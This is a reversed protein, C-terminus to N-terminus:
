RGRWQDLSTRHRAKGGVATFEGSLYIRGDPVLKIVRVHGQVGGGPVEFTRDITGDVDLRAINGRPEEDVTDFRGGILMKGDPQVALGTVRGSFRDPGPNPQFTPDNSGDPLLRAVFKRPVGNVNEFRGVAVIRGDELGIANQLAGDFEPRFESNFSGDANLLALNPQIEGDITAFIGGIIVSGGPLPDLLVVRGLQPAGSEQRQAVVPGTVFGEDLEGDLSVRAIAHRTADGIQDFDGGIIIGTESEASLAWGNGNPSSGAQTFTPDLSGIRENDIISIAISQPGIELQFSEDPEAQDDDLISIRITQDRTSETFSVAQVDALYDESDM